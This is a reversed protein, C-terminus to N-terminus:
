SKFLPVVYCQCDPHFPPATNGEDWQEIKFIEGAPCYMGCEAAGMVRYHTAGLEVFSVYLADNFYAIGETRILRQGQHKQVEIRRAIKKVMTNPNEGKLVGNLLISQAQAELKNTNRAIRSNYKIGDRTWPISIRQKCKVIDLENLPRSMMGSYTQEQIKLVLNRTQRSTISALDRQNQVFYKIFRNYQRRFENNVRYAQKIAEKNYTRSDQLLFPSLMEQYQGVIKKSIQSYVKILSANTRYVEIFANEKLRLIRDGWNESNM